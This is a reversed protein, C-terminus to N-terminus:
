PTHVGPRDTQSLSFFSPTDVEARTLPKGDVMIHDFDNVRMGIHAESGNVTIRGDKIMQESVRRSAVGQAALVKQLKEGQASM